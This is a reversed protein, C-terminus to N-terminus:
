TYENSCLMRAAGTEIKLRANSCFTIESIHHCTEHCCDQMQGDARNNIFCAEHCASEFLETPTSNIYLTFGESRTHCTVAHCLLSHTLSTV